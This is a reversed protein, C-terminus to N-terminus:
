SSSTEIDVNPRNQGEGVSCDGVSDSFAKAVDLSDHLTLKKCVSHVRLCHQGDDKRRFANLALCRRDDGGGPALNEGQGVVALADDGRDAVLDIGDGSGFDALSNM